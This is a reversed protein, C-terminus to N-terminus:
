LDGKLYLPINNVKLIEATIFFVMMDLLLTFVSFWIEYNLYYSLIMLLAATVLKLAFMPMFARNNYGHLFLISLIRKNNAYYAISEFVTMIILFIICIAALSVCKLMGAKIDYFISEFLDEVTLTEVIASSLGYKKILPMLENLPSDSQTKVYLYQQGIIPLSELALNENNLFIIELRKSVGCEYPYLPTITRFSQDADYFLISDNDDVIFEVTDEHQKVETEDDEHMHESVFESYLEYQCEEPLLICSGSEEPLIIDDPTILTGDPAYVKEFDLYSKSVYLINEEIESADVVMADFENFVDFIFDTTKQAYEETDVDVSKSNLTLTVYNRLDGDVTKYTEKLYTNYRLIDLASTLQAIIVLSAVIRSIWSLRSLYKCSTKGQLSSVKSSIITFFSGVFFLIESIALFVIFRLVSYKIFVLTSSFGFLICYFTYCLTMVIFVNVAIGIFQRLFVSCLSNLISYGNLKKVAIEKLRTNAYFLASILIFLLLVMSLITEEDYGPEEMRVNTLLSFEYDNQELASLFNENKNPVYLKCLEIQFNGIESFDHLEYDFYFNGALLRNGDINENETSIYKDEDLSDVKYRSRIGVFDPDSTTSYLKIVPKTSSANEVRVNMLEIGSESALTKIDDIFDKSDQNEKMSVVVECKDKYICDYIHDSYGTILIITQYLFLVTIFLYLTKKM